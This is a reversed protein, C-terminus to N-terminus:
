NSINNTLIDCYSPIQVTKMKAFTVTICYLLLKCNCCLLITMISHEFNAQCQWNMLKEFLRIRPFEFSWIEFKLLCAGVFINKNICVETSAIGYRDTSSEVLNLSVHDKQFESLAEVKMM